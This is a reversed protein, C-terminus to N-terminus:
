CWVGFVLFGGLLGEEKGQTMAKYLEDVSIVGNGDRDCDEMIHNVHSESFKSGPISSLILLDERTIEGSNTQDLISYLEVVEARTITHLGDAKQLKTYVTLGKYWKPHFHNLFFNM